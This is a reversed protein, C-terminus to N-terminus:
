YIPVIFGALLHRHHVAYVKYLLKNWVFSFDPLLPPHHSLPPPNSFVPKSPFVYYRIDRHLYLFNFFIEKNQILDSNCIM